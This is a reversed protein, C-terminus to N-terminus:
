DSSGVADAGDLIFVAVRMLDDVQPPIRGSVFPGKPDNTELVRRAHTLAAVRRNQAVTLPKSEETVSTELDDAPLTLNSFDVEGPWPERRTQSFEGPESPEVKRAIM